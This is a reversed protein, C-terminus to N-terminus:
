IREISDVFVISFGLGGAPKLHASINFKCGAYLPNLETKTVFEYELGNIEFLLVGRPLVKKLTGSTEIPIYQFKQMTTTSNETATATKEVSNSPTNESETLSKIMQDFANETSTFVEHIEAPTVDFTIKM